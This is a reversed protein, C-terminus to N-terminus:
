TPSFYALCLARDEPRNYLELEQFDLLKNMRVAYVEVCLAREIM